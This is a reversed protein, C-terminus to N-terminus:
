AFVHIISRCIMVTATILRATIVVCLARNLVKLEREFSPALPNSWRCLPFVHVFVLRLPGSAYNDAPMLQVARRWCFRQLVELLHYDVHFYPLCRASWVM